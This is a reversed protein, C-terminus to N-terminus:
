FPEQMQVVSSSSSQLGSLGAASGKRSHAGHLERLPPPSARTARAWAKDAGARGVGTKACSDTAKKVNRRNKPPLPPPHQDRPGEVERCHGTAGWQSWKTAPRPGGLRRGHTGGRKIPPTPQPFRAPDQRPLAPSLWRLHGEAHPCRRAPAPPRGLPRPPETGRHPDRGGDAAAAGQLPPFPPSLAAGRSGGVEAWRHSMPPCRPAHPAGGYRLLREPGLGGVDCRLGRVAATVRLQGVLDHPSSKALSLTM